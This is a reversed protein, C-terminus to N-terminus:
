NRLTAPDPERTSETTADKTPADKPAEKLSPEGRLPTAKGTPHAKSYEPVLTGLTTRVKDHASGLALGMLADVGTVVADWEHPKVRGIFVKPHKTKEAHEAETSLEEFL